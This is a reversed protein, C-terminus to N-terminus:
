GLIAVLNLFGQGLERDGRIRVLRSAESPSLGKTALRWVTAQDSEIIAQPTAERGRLLRWEEEMRVTWVGGASGAIEVVLATGRRRVIGRLALPAAHMFTELVPAFLHPDSFAHRGTAERIQALHTWFETYERAVDLWMPAPDPGVWGVPDGTANPDVTKFYVELERWAVDIVEILLSPSIRRAAVVWAENWANLTDAFRTSEDGVPVDPAFSLFNGSHNDRRRSVNSLLGGAIHLAVDFVSWSGCVTPLMWEDRSLSNLVSIADERLASFEDQVQIPTVDQM